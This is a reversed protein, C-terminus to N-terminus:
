IEKWEYLPCPKNRGIKPNVSSDRVTARYGGGRQIIFQPLNTHRRSKRAARPLDIWRKTM